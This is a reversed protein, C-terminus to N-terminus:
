KGENLFAWDPQTATRPNNIIDNIIMSVKYFHADRVEPDNATIDIWGIMRNRDNMLGVGEEFPTAAAILSVLITSMNPLMIARINKAM